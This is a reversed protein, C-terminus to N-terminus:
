YNITLTLHMGMGEVNSQFSSQVPAVRTSISIEFILINPTKPPFHFMNCILLFALIGLIWDHVHKQWLISQIRIFSM